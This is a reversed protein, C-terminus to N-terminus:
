NIWCGDWTTNPQLPIDFNENNYTNGNASGSVELFRYAWCKNPHEVKNNEITLNSMKWFVLHGNNLYNDRVVLDAGKYMYFGCNNCTNEYIYTTAPNTKPADNSYMIIGNWNNVSVSTMTINNNRITLDGKKWYVIPGDIYKGEEGQLLINNEILVNKGDTNVIDGGRNHHFYNNKIIVNENIRGAGELDIGFQPSTGITHHIENNEILIDAGGVISIGQRRNDSFNNRKIVINKLKQEEGQKSGVILVGDGNAKGLVMNEITVNESEGELCILHGEDHTVAGDSPRPTYEHNYREGLITGGSLVVHSKNSISIACYNWKNNPAMEIVANENLLFAMNGKLELGAQYIDNGYKGILYHGEPLCIQGYGESVAWDIASQINDTTKIPETRNNPIDWRDLEIIYKKSPIENYPMTEVASMVGSFPNPNNPDTLSLPKDVSQFRLDDSDEFCSFVSCVLLVLLAQKKLTFLNTM